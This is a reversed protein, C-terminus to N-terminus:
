KRDQKDQEEKKKKLHFHHYALFIVLLMAGLGLGMMLLSESGFADDGGQTQVNTDPSTSLTNSQQLLIQAAM